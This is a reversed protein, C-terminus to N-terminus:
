PALFKLATRIRESVETVDSPMSRLAERVQAASYGLGVLAQLVEGDGSAVGAEDVLQGKLELIIKQATKTGVGSLSTLFGLNGQMIAERVTHPGGASLILMAVKPGVGSVGLLQEFLERESKTLFGYLDHADERLHDHIYFFAEAGVQLGSVTPISVRVEYGIAQVELLCAGVQVDLITGRLSGIM